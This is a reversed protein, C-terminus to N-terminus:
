AKAGVVSGRASAPKETFLGDGQVAPPNDLAPLADRLAALQADIGEKVVRLEGVTLGPPVTIAEGGEDALEVALNRVKVVWKEPAPDDDTLERKAAPPADLVEGTERNVNLAVPPPTVNRVEELATDEMEEVTYLGAISDAFAMRCVESIARARIMNAPRLKWNANGKPIDAQVAMAMTYTHTQSQKWAPRKYVITCREETTETIIIANDGHDRYVLGLMADAYLSAKGGIIYIGALSAMVPMGLERGKLMVAFAAEPTTLTKPALPTGVIRKAVEYMSNLVSSDPLLERSQQVILGTDQTSM